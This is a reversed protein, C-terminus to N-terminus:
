YKNIELRQNGFGNDNLIKLPYVYIKNIESNCIITRNYYEYGTLDRFKEEIVVYLCDPSITYENAGGYEVSKILTNDLGYEYIKMDFLEDIVTFNFTFKQLHKDRALEIEFKQATTLDMEYSFEFMYENDAANYYVEYMKVSKQQASILLSVEYYGFSDSIQMTAEYVNYSRGIFKEQVEDYLYCYGFLTNDTLQTLSPEASSATGVVGVLDFNYKSETPTTNGSQQISKLSLVIAIVSIIIVAFILGITVLINRKNKRVEQGTYITQKTIEEKSILEDLSIGMLKSLEVMVDITPYGRGTEYKSVAQRSVFIKEALQDQTLNNEQRYQKLRDKFEM